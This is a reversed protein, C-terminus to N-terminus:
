DARFDEGRDPDPAPGYKLAEKALAEARAANQAILANGTESAQAYKLFARQILERNGSERALEKERKKALDLYERSRNLDKPALRGDGAAASMFLLADLRGNQAAYEMIGAIWRLARGSEEPGCNMYDALSEAMCDAIGCGWDFNADIYKKLYFEAAEFNRTGGARVNMLSNRAAALLADPYYLRAALEMYKDRLKLAGGSQRPITEGNEGDMIGFAVLFCFEGEASVAACKETGYQPVKRVGRPLADADADMELFDEPHANLLSEDLIRRRIKRYLADTESKTKCRPNKGQISATYIRALDECGVKEFDAKMYADLSKEVDGVAEYYAGWAHWVSEPDKASMLIERVKGLTEPSLRGFARRATEADGRVASLIKYRKHLEYNKPAYREGGYYAESVLRYVDAERNESHLRSELAARKAGNPDPLIGNEFYTWLIADAYDRGIVSTSALIRGAEAPNRLAPDGFLLVVAIETPLCDPYKGKSVSRLHRAYYELALKQIEPPIESIEAEMLRSEARKAGDEPLLCERILEPTRGNMAGARDLEELVSIRDRKSIRPIFSDFEADKQLMKSLSWIRASEMTYEINRQRCAQIYGEMRATDLDGAVIGRAYLIAIAEMEGRRAVERVLELALEADKKVFNGTNMNYAHRLLAEDFHRSTEIRGLMMGLFEAYAAGDKRAEAWHFADRISETHGARASKKILRYAGEDGGLLDDRHRGERNIWFIADPNGKRVLEAMAEKPAEPFDGCRLRAALIYLATQATENGEAALRRVNALYKEYVQEFRGVRARDGDAAHRDLAMQRRREIEEKPGDLHQKLRELQLATAIAGTEEVPAKLFKEFADMNGCGVIENDIRTTHSGPRYPLAGLPSCALCAATFLAMATHKKSRRM